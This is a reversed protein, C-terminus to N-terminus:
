SLAVAAKESPLPAWTEPESEKEKARPRRGLSCVYECRTVHEYLGVDRRVVGAM